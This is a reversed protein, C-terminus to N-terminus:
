ESDGLKEACGEIYAILGAVISLVSMLTTCGGAAPLTESDEEIIIGGGGAINASAESVANNTLGAESGYWRM